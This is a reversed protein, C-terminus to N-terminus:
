QKNKFIRANRKKYPDSVNFAVSKFVKKWENNKEKIQKPNPQDKRIVYTKGIRKSEVIGNRCLKKIYDQSLGWMDSAEKTGIVYDLPNKNPEIM